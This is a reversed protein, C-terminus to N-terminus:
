LVHLLFLRTGREYTSLVPLKINGFISLGRGSWKGCPFLRHVVLANHMRVGYYQMSHICSSEQMFTRKQSLAPLKFRLRRRRPCREM